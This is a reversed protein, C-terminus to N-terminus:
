VVNFPLIRLSLFHVDAHFITKFIHLLLCPDLLGIDEFFKLARHENTFAIFREKVVESLSFSIAAELDQACFKDGLVSTSTNNVTCWAKTLVIICGTDSSAYDLRALCRYRDVRVSLEEWRNIGVLTDVDLVGILSNHLVQLRSAAQECLAGYLM